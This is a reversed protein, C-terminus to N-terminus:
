LMSFGPRLDPVVHAYMFHERLWYLFHNKESGIRCWGRRRSWVELRVLLFFSAASPPRRGSIPDRQDVLLFGSVGLM